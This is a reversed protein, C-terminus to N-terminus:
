KSWDHTKRKWDLLHPSLKYTVNLFRTMSPFCIHNDISSLTYILVDRTVKSRVLHTCVWEWPPSPALTQIPNKKSIYFFIFLKQEFWIHLLKKGRHGDNTKSFLDIEPGFTLYKEDM